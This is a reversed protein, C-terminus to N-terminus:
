PSPHSGPSSPILLTPSEAPFAGPWALSIYCLNTCDKINYLIPLRRSPTPKFALLTRRKAEARLQSTASSDRSGHFCNQTALPHFSGEMLVAQRQPHPGRLDGQHEHRFGPPTDYRTGRTVSSGGGRRMRTTRPSLGDILLRLMMLAIMSDNHLEATATKQTKM